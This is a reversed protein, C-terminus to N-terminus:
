GEVAAAPAEEYVETGGAVNNRGRIVADAMSGMYLQIARIADDNGPIVYDVGEPSSNTDVVGIVPIGLKNAETIAIREHDVDIVFLADPLGGMDKIGGLSRDLKELDRSRMLAEKKTLKAFTGDEAQVELERLRKISQRITKFNTLMGGLWRHDVYPSGCRAAEEAVIKGVSRKTGVFLIKNKGNALREVFSLADNFMPLTKELNIIHIKNRAGFIYKGMKPNWYRTQHGFHVGAKLMDRMNVQSM